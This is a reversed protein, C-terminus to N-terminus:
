IACSNWEEYLVKFTGTSVKGSFQKIQTRSFFDTSSFSAVTSYVLLFLLLM